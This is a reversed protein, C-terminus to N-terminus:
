VDVIFHLSDPTHILKHKERVKKQKIENKRKEKPVSQKEIRSQYRQLNSNRIHTNPSVGKGPFM